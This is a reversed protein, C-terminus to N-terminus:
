EEKKGLLVGEIYEVARKVSGEEFPVSLGAAKLTELYSMSGGCKCLRLYDEWTKEHNDRNKAALEMAGMTTLIYNIYYFPYLFIHLKHYWFGGRDFFDDADYKRWPM